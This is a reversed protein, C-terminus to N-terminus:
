DMERVPQGKYGGRPPYCLAFYPTEDDLPVFGPYIGNAEFGKILRFIRHRIGSSIGVLDRFPNFYLLSRFAAKYSIDEKDDTGEIKTYSTLTETRAERNVSLLPIPINDNLFSYKYELDPLYFPIIRRHTKAAYRWIPLRIEKPLLSFSPFEKAAEM